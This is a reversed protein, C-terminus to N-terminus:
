FQYGLDIGYARPTNRIGTFTNVGGADFDILYEEDTLNQGWLSVKWDGEASELTVRASLNSYSDELDDLYEEEVAKAGILINVPDAPDVFPTAGDREGVYNYDARFILDGIDALALVYEAGVGFTEDAVGPLSKGKRDEMAGENFFLPYETIETDLYNYNASLTLSETAAWTVEMEFGNGEADQNRIVLVPLGLNNDVTDYEQLDEYEYSYVAANIRLRSDMWTSKLGLEINTVSEEDVPNALQTSNFGGAKYGTAYSLYLMADESFKYDLVVRSSVNNWTEDQEFGNVVDPFVLGVPLGLSVGDLTPGPVTLEYDKEDRTYRLGLTLDFAENISYTMDGYVAASTSVLDGSALEAFVAGGPLGLPSGALLTELNILESSFEAISNQKGHERSYMAGLTWRLSEDNQSSLRFEQSFFTNEEENKTNFLVPVDFGVVGALPLTFFNAGDEDRLNSSEFRKIATISTFTLPDFDSEVTISGGWLELTEKPDTDLAVDEDYLDGHTMASVDVAASQDVNAYDIQFLVDTDETAQWSLMARAGGNNEDALESGTLTNDLYGDTHNDMANVRLALTDSLPVNLMGEIKRKGHNGATINVGGEFDQSPKNSILHIAGAAANKGFLTGQPGKLVEIREIDQFATMSAGSRGSYVGDVYVAVAPDSGIGFDNTTIGRIYFRPQTAQTVRTELGPTHIGLDDISQAGVKGVFDASMASISIPVDQVSETRKQATVVIEELTFSEAAVMQGSAALAMASALASKKLMNRSM